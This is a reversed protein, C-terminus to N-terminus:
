NAYWMDSARGCNNDGGAVIEPATWLWTGGMAPTTGIASQGTVTLVKQVATGFDALKAIGQDNLLINQGSINFIPCVVKFLHVLLSLLKIDSQFSIFSLLLALNKFLFTCFFNNKLLKLWFREFLKYCIVYCNECKIDRHIIGKGHMYVLADLMQDVYNATGKETFPGFDGLIKRLSGGGMFEMYIEVQGNEYETGKENRFACGYYQIINNHRLLQLKKIENKAADFSKKSELKQFLWTASKEHQM